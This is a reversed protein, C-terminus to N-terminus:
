REFSPEQIINEGATMIASSTAAATQIKEDLTPKAHEERWLGRKKLTKEADGRIRFDKEKLLSLLCDEPTNLNSAVLDRVYWFADKSLARLMEPSSEPDRAHYLRIEMPEMHIASPTITKLSM